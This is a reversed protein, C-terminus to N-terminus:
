CRSCSAGAATVGCQTFPASHGIPPIKRWIRGGLQNQLCQALGSVGGSATSRRGEAASKWGDAQRRHAGFSSGGGGSVSIGLSTVARLPVPPRKAAATEGLEAVL